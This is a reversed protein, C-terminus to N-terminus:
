LHPHCLAELDLSLNQQRSRLSCLHNEADVVDDLSRGPSSWCVRCSDKIRGSIGCDKCYTCDFAQSLGGNKAHVSDGQEGTSDTISPYCTWHTGIGSHERDEAEIRLSQNM